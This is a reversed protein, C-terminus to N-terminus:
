QAVARDLRAPSRPRCKVIRSSARRATMTWHGHQSARHSSNPAVPRRGRLARRRTVGGVCGLADLLKTSRGEGGSPTDSARLASVELIGGRHVNEALPYFVTAGDRGRAAVISLERDFPVIEEALEDASLAEHAAEVRRQGKGDYGLRRSKVLAPLGTEAFSGYAATAIGLAGFLEKEALRDRGRRRRRGLPPLEVRQPWRCTRSSTRMADASDALRDLLEADDDGVLLEGVDGACADAATSLACRTRAALAAHAQTSRGSSGLLATVRVSRAGHARGPRVRPVRRAACARRRRRRHRPRLAANVVPAQAIIALTGVPVGAPMQAISLLSDLGQLSKSEVPVGLVPLLTKSSTMGPLHAAGGAGAIIVQLGREEATEAYAFLKDPTRHASVVEKEYPVGLEDLTEAAHRMTEWDSRSGMIIGVVPAGAM